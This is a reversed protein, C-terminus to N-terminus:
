LRGGQSRNDLNWKRAGTNEGKEEIIKGILGYVSRERDPEMFKEPLAPRPRGLSM